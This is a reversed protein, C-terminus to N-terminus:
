GYTPNQTKNKTNYKGTRTINEMNYKQHQITHVLHTDYQKIQQITSVKRENLKEKM